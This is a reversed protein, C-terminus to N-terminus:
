IGMSISVPPLAPEWDDTVTIRPRDRPSIRKRSRSRTIPLSSVTDSSHPRVNATHLKALSMSKSRTERATASTTQTVSKNVTTAEFSTPEASGISAFRTPKSGVTIAEGAFWHNGFIHDIHAETNILYRIPGRELAFKRMELLKSLLQATDVFVSGESTFVISPNCGRIKTETYINSTVQEM